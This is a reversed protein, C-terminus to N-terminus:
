CVLHAPRVKDISRAAPPSLLILTPVFLILLEKKAQFFLGGQSSDM